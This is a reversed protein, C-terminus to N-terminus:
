RRRIPYLGRVSVRRQVHIEFCNTELIGCVRQISESDYQTLLLRYLLFSSINQEVLRYIDTGRRQELHSVLEDLREGDVFGAFDLLTFSNHM